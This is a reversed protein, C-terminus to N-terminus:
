DKAKWAIILGTVIFVVLLILVWDFWSMIVKRLLFKLRNLNRDQIREGYFDEM